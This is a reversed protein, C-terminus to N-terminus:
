ASLRKLFVFICNISFDLTLNLKLNICNTLFSGSSYTVIIKYKPITCEIRKSAPPMEDSTSSCILPGKNNFLVDEFSCSSEPLTEVIPPIENSSTLGNPYVPSSDTEKVLFAEVSDDEISKYAVIDIDGGFMKLTIRRLKRNLM